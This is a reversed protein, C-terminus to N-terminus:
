GFKCLFKKKKKSKRRKQYLVKNIKMVERMREEKNVLLMSLLYKNKIIKGEKMRKLKKGFISNISDLNSHFLSFSAKSIVIVKM